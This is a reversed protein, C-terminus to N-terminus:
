HESVSFFAESLTSIIDSATMAEPSYKKEAIDGALGHLFVGFIAANTPTYGQALLGTLLGTLVDGSGGKAMGSNGTQNYYQKGEPTNICTHHGKLVIVCNLKKAMVGAKNIRDFDNELFGFLREFEKPHPTLISQEPILNMLEINSAIINLADADIVLPKKYSSLIKKLCQMTENETGIGPGIGIATYKNLDDMVNSIMLFNDDASVMAEPVASQIIEYGCKPIHCSVLGAGSHTCAKSALVAAGMKGYSGAILFAHGFNGKHAFRNRPKYIKKIIDLETIISTDNLLAEFDKHLSIDLIHVEGIASANESVLFAPKFCQFSLTHTALITINGKSSRDVFLGSPIDISIIKCGSLNIFEILSKAIGDVARNIGSGLLADIIIEDNSPQHFDEEKQIFFIKVEPYQQLRELNIQFDDTGKHGIDLIFVSVKINQKALLRAIALGDGGNNGKGCFINFPKNNYGNKELWFVCKTAAREMLNVSSIPEYQITFQDWERIQVANLIEM